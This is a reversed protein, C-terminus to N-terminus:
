GPIYRAVPTDKLIDLDINKFNGAVYALYPGLTTSPQELIDDRSPGLQTSRRQLELQLSAQGAVTHIEEAVEKASLKTYIRNMIETTRWGGQQRTADDMAGQRCYFTAGGKRLSHTATSHGFSAVVHKRLTDTSVPGGKNIGTTTVFLFDDAGSAAAVLKRAEIWRQLALHPSWPGMADIAPILCRQGLGCQDNKQCTAKLQIGRATTEIVDAMRFNM